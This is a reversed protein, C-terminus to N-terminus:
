FCQREMRQLESTEKAYSRPLKTLYNILLFLIIFGEHWEIRFVNNKSTDILAKLQMTAPWLQRWKSKSPYKDAVNNIIINFGDIDDKSRPQKKKRSPFLEECHGYKKCIYDALMLKELNRSRGWKEWDATKFTYYDGWSSKEQELKLYKKDIMKLDLGPVALAFGREAYKILRSEFADGRLALDVVNVRNIIAFKARGTM